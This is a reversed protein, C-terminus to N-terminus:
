IRVFPQFLKGVWDRAILPADTCILCVCEEGSTVTPRHEVSEDNLAFDGPAHISGRDDYAGKLVTVSECGRHRHRPVSMGPGVRLLYTRSRGPGRFIPAVWVGPAAWRRRKWAKAVAPSDFAIWDDPASPKRAETPAPRELRALALDLATPDMAAAPLSELLAGGIAEHRRVVSRCLHCVAVHAALVLDRGESLVGAAHQILLAETPHHSTTM